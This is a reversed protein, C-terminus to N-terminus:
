DRHTRKSKLFSAGALCLLLVIAVTVPIWAATEPASDVDLQALAPTAQALVLPFVLWLTKLKM